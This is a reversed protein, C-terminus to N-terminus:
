GQGYLCESWNLLMLMCCEFKFHLRYGFLLIPEHDLTTTTGITRTCRRGAGAGRGEDGFYLLLLLGIIVILHTLSDNHRICPKSFAHALAHGRQRTDM